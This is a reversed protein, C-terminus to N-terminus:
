EKRRRLPSTQIYSELDDAAYAGLLRRVLLRTEHLDLEGSDILAELDAQDKKRRAVMKMAALYAPAAVPLPLGPIRIANRIASQYLAAYDDSRVIWDVPVGTSTKTQIGGFSLLGLTPLQTLLGDAAFDVNATLRDSGFFQLACGGVLVVELSASRALEAVESIAEDMQAFTIYQTRRSGSSM